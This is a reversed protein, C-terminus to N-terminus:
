FTVCDDCVEGKEHHKGPNNCLPEDHSNNYEELKVIAKSGLYGLYAWDYDDAIFSTMGLYNVLFWMKQVSWDGFHWYFGEEWDQPQESAATTTILFHRDSETGPIFWENTGIEMELRVKSTKLSNDYILIVPIRVSTRGPAIVFRDKVEPDDFAVYHVGARAAGPQGTNSQVISVPRPVDALVGMTQLEVFVTDRTVGEKVTFFSHVVSDQQGYGDAGRGFRLAPEADYLGAGQRECGFFLCIVLFPIIYKRTTKM